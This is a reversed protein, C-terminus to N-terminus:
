TRPGRSSTDSRADDPRGNNPGEADDAIALAVRELSAARSAKVLVVDGPRLERRLLAVAADVDPVWSAEGDWSGELAAGHQIPRAQEGVAILRSVDLRVALRGLADHEATADDGLEAMQGLVAFSRAGSGRRHAHVAALAKLAARMSEPNANYADNIVLVGDARQTVEMRWRSVSGAASLADAIERLSLGCELAVATTALANSVHHAGVLRLTVEATQENATVRFSPRGLEDLQVDTARVDASDSEGFTVVRAETRSRMALVHADDANLVAVGGDEASPLAEVLEGKAQAIAERSGFEGLHASGVNLVAAIRPRAIETLLRIHGIGRASNELVLFRTSPDARLVTYPHGLENNFSGPPAVTPGTTSLVQAILDKTSTKGSSGTVGIVTAPLRRIVAAALAAIAAFADSVEIRAAAVPKTVIAAVAGRTFADGVFDHGDVHEGDFALFLGGAGIQRSDFEVSGTVVAAPDADRLTGGVIAAIEDLRLPIM